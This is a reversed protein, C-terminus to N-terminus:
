KFVLFTSGYIKTYVKRPQEVGYGGGGRQIRAQGLAARM